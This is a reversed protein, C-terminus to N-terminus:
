YSSIYLSYEESNDLGYFNASCEFKQNLYIKPTNVYYTNVVVDGRMLVVSFKYSLSSTWTVTDIFPTVDGTMNVKLSTSDKSIKVDQININCLGTSYKGTVTNYLSVKDLVSTPVEPLTVSIAKQPISYINLSFEDFTGDKDIVQYYIVGKNNKGPKIDDIPITISCLYQTGNAKSTWNSFNSKSYSFTRKYVCEGNNEIRINVKGQGSIVKENKDLFGWFLREVKENDYYSVSRNNIYYVTSQEKVATKEKVTVKCKVIKKGAKASIYVTGKKYAHIYGKNNVSAISKNSSSWKVDTYSLKVKQPKYAMKLQYSKGAYISLEKKDLTFSTLETVTVKCKYRRKGITAVVYCAGRKKAVVQGKSTVTAVSKKTSSWKIKSKTGSVKLQIKQGPILITSSKNIKVSSAAEVTQVGVGMNNPIAITSMGIVVALMIAIKKLVKKMKSM